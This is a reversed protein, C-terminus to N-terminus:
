IDSNEIPTVTVTVDDGKEVVIEVTAGGIILSTSFADSDAIFPAYFEPYVIDGVILGSILTAKNYPNSASAYAGKINAPEGSTLAAGRFNIIRYGGRM